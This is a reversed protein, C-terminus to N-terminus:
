PITYTYMCITVLRVMAIMLTSLASELKADAALELALLESVESLIRMRIKDYIIFAFFFFSNIVVFFYIPVSTSSYSCCCCCFLIRSINIQTVKRKEHIAMLGPYFMNIVGNDLLRLICCVTIFRNILLLNAVRRFM